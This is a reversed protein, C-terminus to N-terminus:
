GWTWKHGPLTFFYSTNVPNLYILSSRNVSAICTLVYPDYLWDSCLSYIILLPSLMDAPLASRNWFVTCPVIPLVSDATALAPSITYLCPALCVFLYLRASGNNVERDLHGQTNVSNKSIYKRLYPFIFWSKYKLVPMRLKPCLSPINVTEGRGRSYTVFLRFIVLVGTLFSNVCTFHRVDLTEVKEIYEIVELSVFDTLNHQMDRWFWDNIYINKNHKSKNQHLLRLTNETTTPIVSWSTQSM